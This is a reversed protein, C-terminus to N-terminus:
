SLFGNFVSTKEEVINIINMVRETYTHKQKILNFGNECIQQRKLENNLYFKALQVGEEATHFWVLHTHNTFIKEIGPFYACLYFGGAALVNFIRDSSYLYVDNKWSLGINIKNQQFFLITQDLDMVSDREELGFTEQFRDLIQNRNNYRPDERQRRGLFGIDFKILNNPFNKAVYAGQPMFFIKQVGWKQQYEQIQESNSLFIHDIFRGLNENHYIIEELDVLWFCIKGKEGLISRMKEGNDMLFPLGAYQLILIIDPQFDAIKQLITIDAPLPKNPSLTPISTWHLKEIGRENEINIDLYTINNKDLGFRTGEYLLNSSNGYKSLLCIRM